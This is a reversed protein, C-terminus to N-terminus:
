NVWHIDLNEWRGLHSFLSGWSSSTHARNAESELYSEPSVTDDTLNGDVSHYPYEKTGAETWDTSNTLPSNTSSTDQICVYTRIANQNKDGSSDTFSIVISADEIWVRDGVM